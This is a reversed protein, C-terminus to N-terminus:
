RACWTRSTGASRTSVRSPSASRPCCCATSRRRTTPSRRAPRRSRTSSRCSTRRRMRIRRRRDPRVAALGASRDADEPERRAARQECRHDGARHRDGKGRVSEAVASLVSNLKAPDISQVVSQLNQFVTNVEVTVNRSHLVAGPKLPESSPTRCARHSRRVQRRIRHQVQDGGRRQEAPVPVTGPRDEPEAEFLRDAAGTEAGISAVEGIQVGRLKVKAGNEMVLGARDSVLTLPVYDRLTGSFLLATLTILAAIVLFLVPAWWIPDIKGRRPANDM